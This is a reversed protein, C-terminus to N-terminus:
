RNKMRVGRQNENTIERVKELLDEKEKEKVPIPPVYRSMERSYQPPITDEGINQAEKPKTLAEKIKEDLEKKSIPKVEPVGQPQELEEYEVRKSRKDMMRKCFDMLKKSEKKYEEYERTIETEEVSSTVVLSENQYVKGAIANKIEIERMLEKFFSEGKERLDEQEVMRM